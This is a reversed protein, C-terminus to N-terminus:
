SADEPQHAHASGEGAQGDIHPVPPWVVESHEILGQTRRYDALVTAGIGQARIYADAQEYGGKPNNLVCELADALRRAWDAWTGDDEALLRYYGEVYPTMQEVQQRLTAVLEADQTPETPM